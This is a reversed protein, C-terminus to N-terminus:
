EGYVVMAPLREYTDVGAPPPPAPDRFWALLYPGDGTRRHADWWALSRGAWALDADGGTKWEVAWADLPQTRGDADTAESGDVRLMAVADPRNSLARLGAPSPEVAKSEFPMPQTDLLHLLFRAARSEFAPAEGLCLVGQVKYLDDSSALVPLPFPTERPKPLPFRAATGGHSALCVFHELAALPKGREAYYVRAERISPGEPGAFLVILVSSAAALLLMAGVLFARRRQLLLAAVLVALSFLALGLWITTSDAGPGSAEAFLWCTDPQVTALMGPPFSASVVQLDDPPRYHVVRARGPPAGNDTVIVDLLGCRAAMNFEGPLTSSYYISRVERGDLAKRLDRVLRTSGRTMMRGVIAVNESVPRIPIDEIESVDVIDGDSSECGVTVSLPGGAYFVPFVFEETRGPAVHLPAVIDVPGGCSVRTRDFPRDSDNSVVLTVPVYYGVRALGDTVDLSATVDIDAALAAPVALLLLSFSTMSLAAVCRAKSWLWFLLGRRSEEDGQPSRLIVVPKGM